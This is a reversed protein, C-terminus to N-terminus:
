HNSAIPIEHEIRVKTTWTIQNWVKRALHITTQNIQKTQIFCLWIDARSSYSVSVLLPIGIWDSKPHTNQLAQQLSLVSHLASPIWPPPLRIPLNYPSTPPIPPFFSALGATPVRISLRPWNHRLKTLPEAALHDTLSPDDASRLTATFASCLPNVPKRIEDLM